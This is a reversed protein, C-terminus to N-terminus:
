RYPPYSGPQDYSYYYPPYAFYQPPPENYYPPRDFHRPHMGGPRRPPLYNLPPRSHVACLPHHPRTYNFSYPSHRSDRPRDPLPRSNGGYRDRVRSRNSHKVAAHSSSSILNHQSSTTTIFSQSPTSFLPQSCVQVTATTQETALSINSNCNKNVKLNSVLLSEAKQLINIGMEQSIKNQQTTPKSIIEHPISEDCGEEDSEDIVITAAKSSSEEQMTKHVKKSPKAKNVNSTSPINSTSEKQKSCVIMVEEQDETAVNDVENVDQSTSDKGVKSVSENVVVQVESSTVNQFQSTKNLELKVKLETVPESDIVELTDEELTLNDTKSTLTQKIAKFKKVAMRMRWWSQIMIVSKRLKLYFERQSKTKVYSRFRTQIVTAASKNLRTRYFIREPEALQSSLKPPPEWTTNVQSSSAVSTALCASTTTTHGSCTHHSSTTAVTTSPSLVKSSTASRTSRTLPRSGSNSKSSSSTVRSSPGASTSKSSQPTSIPATLSSFAVNSSSFSLSPVTISSINSPCSIAAQLLKNSSLVQQNVYIPFYLPPSKSILIYVLTSKNPAAAQTSSVQKAKSSSQEKKKLLKARFYQQVLLTYKKLKLFRKRSLFGRVVKQIIVAATHRMQILLKRVLYGRFNSQIVAAKATGIRFCYGCLCRHVPLSPDHWLQVICRAKYGRYVRQLLLVSSKLKDYSRRDIFGKFHSQIIVASKLKKYQKRALFGRVVSQVTIVNRKYDSKTKQFFKRALFGRSIAQFEVIGSKINNVRHCTSYNSQIGKFFIEEQLRNQLWKKILAARFWKQLLYIANRTNVYKRRSLYRRVQSQIRVVSKVILKYRRRALWGRFLSQIIVIKKRHSLERVAAPTLHLDDSTSHMPHVSNVQIISNYNNTLDLKMRKNNKSTKNDGITSSEANRKNFAMTNDLSTIPISLASDSIPMANNSYHTSPSLHDSQSMSKSTGMVSHTDIHSPLHCHKLHDSSNHDTLINDILCRITSVTMSIDESSLSQSVEAPQCTSQETIKISSEYVSPMSSPQQQGTLRYHM